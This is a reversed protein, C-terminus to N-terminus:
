FKDLEVWVCVCRTARIVFDRSEVFVGDREDISKVEKDPTYPSGDISTVGKTPTYPNGGISKVENGPTYTNGDISNVENEQHVLTETM